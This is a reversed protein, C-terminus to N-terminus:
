LPPVIGRYFKNGAKVRLYIIGRHSQQLPLHVAHTGAPMWRAPMPLSAKRGTPDYAEILVTAEEHLRLSVDVGGTTRSTRILGAQRLLVDSPQSNKPQQAVERAAVKAFSSSGGGISVSGSAKAITITGGSQMTLSTGSAFWISASGGADITLNSKPAITLSSGSELTVDQQLTINDYLPLRVQSMEVGLHAGHNEITHILAKYANVRGYGMENNWALDQREGSGMTYTYGGVKETTGEIADRVKQVTLNDNISLILSAIGSVHPAASSTGLFDEVYDGATGASINYGHIGQLDTTYIKVGPAVVDLGTGYHSGWGEGDCSTYSKREGCMSTAGVAIVNPNSSPYTITAIDQNGTSFVVVSGLGGRGLSTANDLADDLQQSPPFGGWSNNIVDAGNLWAQDIGDAAGEAGTPPAPTPDDPPPSYADYSISMLQGKPAIGAIGTNNDSNAGIIGAVATGHPGYLQSPSTGIKTDYSFSHINSFDPHNLEIGEDVIATIISSHSKTIEWADQIQIDEGPTGSYQGTNNLNWQDPYFPDSVVHFPAIPMFDPEAAAFHGTEYFLNAMRLANGTSNRSCALTYWLPRFKNRYLVKVNHQKALEELQDHQNIHNLKVYFIHSMGFADGNEMKFFPAYYVVEPTSLYLTEDPKLKVVSWYNSARKEAADGYTSAIDLRRVHKINDKSTKLEYSLEEISVQGRLLIFFNNPLSQLPIRNGKYWYYQNEDLSFGLTYALALALLISFNKM